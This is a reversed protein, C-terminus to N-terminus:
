GATRQLRAERLGAFLALGDVGGLVAEAAREPHPMMGLVNGARNCVGAINRASGNVNAEDSAEGAADCYRFVVQGAAEIEDLLEAPAEFNGEAHAIPLSIVQGASYGRTFPLDTREVRLHVDRCIFRQTRNRRMAGPLLGAELLIQFGNCIGLVLGGAEAHRLVARMVPSKAALAGGRLYDGYSFGGPLVVLDCGKLNEDGHWLFATEHGVVHKLVHYVDHDCNAGPFIVVGSKM